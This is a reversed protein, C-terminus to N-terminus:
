LLVLKRIAPLLFLLSLLATGISLIVYVPGYKKVLEQRRKEKKENLKYYGKYICFVHTAISLGFFGKIMDIYILWKM